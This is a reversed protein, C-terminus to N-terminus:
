AGEKTQQEKEAEKKAKETRELIAALEHFNAKVVETIDMKKTFLLNM